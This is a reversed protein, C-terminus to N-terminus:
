GRPSSSSTTQRIEATVLRPQGTSEGSGFAELESLKRATVGLRTEVTGVTANYEDVAKGLSAGLRDFRTLVGGLRGSLEKGLAHIARAEDTISQQQWGLAATRLLAILSSPTALVVNRTFAYEYIQPDSRAAAELIPDSPLFLVVMEPSTEFAAWYSKAALAAIHSRVSRAHDALLQDQDASDAAVADLYAHLPVKADVVLHREGALHVVLDPRVSNEGASTSGGGRGSPETQPASARVQTSFDCHKTMGALEVVRELQMEGWRGRLHPTHLANTLAQTQMGLRHSAHQMDRVQESLGAYAGIRDRETRQVQEALRHLSEHLPGVIHHVSSGIAASQRRAADESASALARSALDASERVARAEARAAALAPATLSAHVSWGVALGAALAALVLVVVMPTAM